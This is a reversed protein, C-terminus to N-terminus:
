DVPGELMALLEETTKGALDGDDVRAKMPALRELMAVYLKQAQNDGNVASQHISAMVELQADEGLHLEHLRDEMATRYWESKDWRRLTETSVGHAKAWSEKSGERKPNSRWEVYALQTETM